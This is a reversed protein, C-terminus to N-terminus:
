RGDSQITESTICRAELMTKTEKQSDSVILVTRNSIGSKGSQWRGTKHKVSNKIHLCLTLRM